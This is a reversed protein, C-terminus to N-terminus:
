DGTWIGGLMNATAMGVMGDPELGKKKQYGIVAKQTNPGFEGDSPGPSFNNLALADQVDAVDDGTMYPTKLKLVRGLQFASLQNEIWPPVPNGESDTVWDAFLAATTKEGVIGDVELNKAKQFAKVARETYPGFVGDITGPDFGKDKLALQVQAVDDGNLYPATLKLYRGLWASPADPEPPISTNSYDVDAMKGWNTWKKNSAPATLKSLVVGINTGGSEIVKGNGIYVGIHGNRWVCLGPIEPITSLKGKQVSKSYITNATKDGYNPIQSRYAQIILGSCDVITKGYWRSCQVVYYDYGRGSKRAAAWKAALAKTYIQGQGGFVYGWGANKANIVFSVIDAAKIVAM